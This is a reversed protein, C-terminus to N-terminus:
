TVTTIGPAVLALRVATSDAAGIAFQCMVAMAAIAEGQADPLGVLVHDVGAEALEHGLTAVGENSHGFIGYDSAGDRWALQLEERIVDVLEDDDVSARVRLRGAAVADRVAASDFDRRMISLALAPVAGSPDRHSAPELEVVRDARQMARKLRAPGVGPVFTYIM